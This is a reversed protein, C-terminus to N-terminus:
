EGHHPAIMEFDRQQPYSILVARRRGHFLFLSGAAAGSAGAELVARLDDLSGAGGCAVTPITVRQTIAKVLDLDYGSMTGDRDISNILLEGAGEAQFRTALSVPSSGCLHRGSSTRVEHGSETALVDICAVVSQSGVVETLERLLHPEQVARTGVVVKEVGISIIRVADEVSRIGGGFAIPMFAESAIEEILGFRPGRGEPTAGIDLLVLEDAMKDSFIKVANRPDGVYIPDSFRVTKILKEGGLLLVPIVRPRLM